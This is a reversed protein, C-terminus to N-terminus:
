ECHYTDGWHVVDFRKAKPNHNKYTLEFAEISGSSYITYALSYTEILKSKDIKSGTLVYMGSLQDGWYTKFVKAKQSGNFTVLQFEGKGDESTCSFEAAQAYSTYFLLGLVMAFFRIKM